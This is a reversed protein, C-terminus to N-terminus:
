KAVQPALLDLLRYLGIAVINRISPKNLTLQQGAVVCPGLHPAIRKVAATEEPSTPKSNILAHATALDRLALCQALDEATNRPAIGAAKVQAETLVPLSTVQASTLRSFVLQEAIGGPMSAPSLRLNADGTAWCDDLGGVHKRVLAAQEDSLYPLALITAATQPRKRAFCRAFQNLARIAEGQRQMDVSEVSGRATDIRSGIEPAALAPTSLALTSAAALAMFQRPM